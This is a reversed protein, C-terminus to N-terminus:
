KITLMEHILKKRTVDIDTFPVIYIHFEHGYLKHNIIKRQITNVVRTAHQKVSDNVWERFEKNKMSLQSSDIKLEFGLFIGFSLDLDPGDDGSPLLIKKIKEYCEESVMENIVHTDILGREFAMGNSKFDLISDFAERAGELLDAYIKSEGFILQYGDDLELLHVGDSGKIYDNSDTKLQMKSLLKPANLGAELFAYLLLEGLEGENSTYNRFKQIAEFFPKHSYSPYSEKFEELRRNSHVYTIIIDRLEEVLKCYIFENSEINLVHINLTSQQPCDDIQLIKFLSLFRKHVRIPLLM